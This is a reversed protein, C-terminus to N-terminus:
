SCEFYESYLSNPRRVRPGEVVSPKFIDADKVGVVYGGHTGTENLVVREVKWTFIDDVQM